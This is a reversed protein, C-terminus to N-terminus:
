LESRSAPLITVDGNRTTLDIMHDGSHSQSVSVDQNGAKTTVQARYEVAPLELRVQSEIKVSMPASAFTLDVNGNRTDTAVPKAWIADGAVDMELLPLFFYVGLGLRGRVTPPTLFVRFM